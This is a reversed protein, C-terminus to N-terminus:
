ARSSRLEVLLQEIRNEIGLQKTLKEVTDESQKVALM